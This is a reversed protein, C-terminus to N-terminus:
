WYYIEFNWQFGLTHTYTCISFNVKYSISRVFELAIYFQTILV